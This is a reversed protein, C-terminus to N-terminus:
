NKKYFCIYFDFTRIEMFLHNPISLGVDLICVSVMYLYLYICTYIFLMVCSVSLSKSFSSRREAEGFMVTALVFFLCLM